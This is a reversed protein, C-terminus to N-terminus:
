VMSTLGGGELTRLQASFEAELSDLKEMMLCQFLMLCQTQMIRERHDLKWENKWVKLAWVMLNM